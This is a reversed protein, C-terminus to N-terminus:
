GAIVASFLSDGPGLGLAVFPQNKRAFEANQFARRFVGVAYEARLMGGLNFVGVKNLLRHSLPVHSLVVKAAIKLQWPVHHHPEMLSPDKRLLIRGSLRLLAACGCPFSVGSGHM